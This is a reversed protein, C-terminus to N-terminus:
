NLSPRKTKGWRFMWNGDGNLIIMVVVSQRVSPFFDVVVAGEACTLCALPLQTLNTYTARDRKERLALLDVDDMSNCDRCLPRDLRTYDYRRYEPERGDCCFCSCHPSANYFCKSCQAQCLQMHSSVATTSCSRTASCEQIKIRGNTRAGSLPSKQFKKCQM